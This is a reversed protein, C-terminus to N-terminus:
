EQQDAPYTLFGYIILATCCLCLVLLGFFTKTATTAFAVNKSPRTDAAYDQLVTWDVNFSELLVSANAIQLIILLFILFLLMLGVMLPATGWGRAVKGSDTNLQRFFYQLPAVGRPPYKPTEM